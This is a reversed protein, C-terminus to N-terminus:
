TSNTNEDDIDEQFTSCFIELKEMCAFQSIDFTSYAIFWHCTM